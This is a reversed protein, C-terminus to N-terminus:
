QSIVWFFFSCTHGLYFVDAKMVYYWFVTVCFVNVAKNLLFFVWFSAIKLWFNWGSFLVCLILSTHVVMATFSCVKSSKWESIQPFFGLLLSCALTALEVLKSSCFVFNRRKIFRFDSLPDEFFLSFFVSFVCTDVFGSISTAVNWVFVWGIFSSLM